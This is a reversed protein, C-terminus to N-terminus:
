AARCPRPFVLAEAARSSLGMARGVEAWVVASGGGTKRGERRAKLDARMGEHFLIAPVMWGAQAEGALAREVDLLRRRLAAGESQLERLAGPFRAALAKMAARRVRAEDESFAKLGRLEAAERAQRLHLLARYKELLECLREPSLRM